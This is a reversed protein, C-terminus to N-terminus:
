RAAVATATQEAKYAAVKAAITRKDMDISGNFQAGEVIVVKNASLNGTVSSTVGLEIRETAAINGSVTGLVLVRVSRVDAEIRASQGITLEAERLLIQGKVHGDVRLSEESILEGTIVIGPGIHTM